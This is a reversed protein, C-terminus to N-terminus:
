SRRALARMSRIGCLSDVVMQVCLRGCRSDVRVLAEGEGM